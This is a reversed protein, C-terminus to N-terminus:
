CSWVINNGDILKQNICDVVCKHSKHRYKLQLTQTKGKAFINLLSGLIPLDGWRYILQFDSLCITKLIANVEENLWFNVSSLYVNTYPFNHYFNTRNCGTLSEIFGPLTENTMEHSENWPWFVTKYYISNETLDSFINNSEIIECDTDIRMIYDYKKCYQWVYYSFFRCMSSYPYQNNWNKQIDIFEFKLEPTNRTIYNQHELTIDGENFIIIPYETGIYKSISINRSILEDYDEFDSYAKSLCVIAIKPNV